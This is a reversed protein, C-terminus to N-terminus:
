IPLTGQTSTQQFVISTKYGMMNLISASLQTTTPVFIQFPTFLGYPYLNDIMYIVGIAGLFIMSISFNTIQRTGYYLSIILAFLATLVLYEAALPVFQVFDPVVGYSRAFDMIAANLVM